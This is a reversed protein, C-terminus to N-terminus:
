AAHKFAEVLSRQTWQWHPSVEAQLRAEMPLWGSEQDPSANHTTNTGHRLWFAHPFGPALVFPDGARQSVKDMWATDEGVKRQEDFRVSRAIDIRVMAASAPIVDRAGRPAAPAKYHKVKNDTLRYFIGHRWGVVPAGAAQAAAVLREIKEPHQWDDDDFWVVYDGSAEELLANRKQGITMTHGNVVITETNAYTQRAIVNEKLWPWLWPRSTPVLISVLPGSRM